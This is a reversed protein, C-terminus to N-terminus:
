GNPLSSVGDLALNLLLVNVRPEGVLGLTPTEIHDMVLAKVKDEALGRAKAVRPVQLLAFSPSIHPDLGSGSSTVADAPIAGEFGAQRLKQIDGTVRDKLKASTPGLNSGSSATADYGNGAVSLRGQFYKDQTWLQGILASGTPGSAGSTLSGNAAGPFVVQAIGTMALPYILGTLVTLLLWIVLAPRLQAFM